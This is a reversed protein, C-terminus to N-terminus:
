MKHPVAQRKRRDQTEGAEEPKIEPSAIREGGSASNM